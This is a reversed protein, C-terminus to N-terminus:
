QKTCTSSYFPQGGFYLKGEITKADLKKFTHKFPAPGKPTKATGEWAITDGVFGKSTLHTVDGPAYNDAKERVFIKQAPDYGWLDNGKPPMPNKASADQVYSWAIWVGDTNNAAVLTATSDYAPGFDTKSWKEQCKWTGVFYGFESGAKAADPNPKPADARAATALLGLSFGLSLISPSRTITM